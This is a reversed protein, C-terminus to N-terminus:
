RKRKDKKSDKTEEKTEVLHVKNVVIQFSKRNEGDEDEYSQINIKGELAIRDGKKAYDTIVEALNNWAICPIFQALSEGDKDVGDKVAVSFRCYSGKGKKLEVLELDHTIRGYLNVSNM